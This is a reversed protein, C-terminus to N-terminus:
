DLGAPHVMLAADVGALAGREALFVKGGGGEEAPTGLVLLRGGLEDALAAAALGAGVGATGIINHGCAHGIGPLADYECLVAITPGETGARAVFATDLGYAGREVDLGEAELIGTLLDHAFHEEFALEPRGHIQHSADVLVDSLREVEGALREKVADLDPAM